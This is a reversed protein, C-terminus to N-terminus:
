DYWQFKIRIVACSTYRPPCYPFVRSHCSKVYSKVDLSMYPIGYNETADSNDLESLNKWKHLVSLLPGYQFGRAGLIHLAFLVNGNDLM